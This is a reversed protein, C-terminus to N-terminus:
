TQTQKEKNFLHIQSNIQTCLADVVHQLHLVILLWYPSVFFFLFKIIDCSSGKNEQVTVSICTEAGPM